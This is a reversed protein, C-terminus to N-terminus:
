TRDQRGADLDEQEWEIITDWVKTVRDNHIFVEGEEDGGLATVLRLDFLMKMVARLREAESEYFFPRGEKALTRGIDEELDGGFPTKTEKYDMLLKLVEKIM